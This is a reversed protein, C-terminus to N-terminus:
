KVSQAAEFALTTNEFLAHNSGDERVKENMIIMSHYKSQKIM